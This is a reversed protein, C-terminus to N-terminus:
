QYFHTAETEQVDREIQDSNMAVHYRIDGTGVAKVRMTWTAKTKAALSPLPAFTITQGAVAARTPGNSSVYQAQDELRVGVVINTGVASGQNTVTITYTTESGVEVPDPNDVVELLIAPIGAVLTSATASVADACYAKAAAVNRITGLATGTVTLTVKRSAGPQMDGLNWVMKNGVPQGGGSAKLSRAGAPIPDELVTNKAVGDGTNTVSIEYTIPRGLYRKAPGTKTIALVPQKVVTTTTAEANLGGQGSAVARNTFSGSRTAKAQFNFTKSQGQGLTGVDYALSRKGDMTVLGEPLSDLVKVNRAPGSGTNTVTVKVPIPDCKLVEAPATKVLALKPNIVNIALCAPLDYTATVCNTLKGPSGASGSVRASKVAGPQMDGLAWRLYLGDRSTPAPEASTTRGTCTGDM